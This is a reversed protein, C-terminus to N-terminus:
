ITRDSRVEKQWKIPDINKAKLIGSTKAFIDSNKKEKNETVPHSFPLILIEVEQDIYEKPIHINYHESTAKIIERVM